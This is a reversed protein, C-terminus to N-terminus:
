KPPEPLEQWHTPIDDIDDKDLVPTGNEDRESDFPLHWEDGIRFAVHVWEFVTGNFKGINVLDFNNDPHDAIPKWLNLEQCEDLLFEFDESDYDMDELVERLREESIYKM